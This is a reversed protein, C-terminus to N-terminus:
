MKSKDIMTRNQDPHKFVAQPYMKKITTPTKGVIFSFDVLPIKQVGEYAKVLIEREQLIMPNDETKKTAM